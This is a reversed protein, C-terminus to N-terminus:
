NSVKWTPKAQRHVRSLRGKLSKEQPLQLV